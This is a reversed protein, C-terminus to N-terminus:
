LLTKDNAFMALTRFLIFCLKGDSQSNSYKKINEVRTTGSLKVHIYEKTPRSGKYLLQVEAGLETSKTGRRVHLTVDFLYPSDM